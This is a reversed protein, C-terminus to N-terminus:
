RVRSPACIPSNCYAQEFVVGTSALRSLHPAKVVGGGYVPLPAAAMQDAMILVINPAQAGAKATQM